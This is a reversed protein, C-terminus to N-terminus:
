SRSHVIRNRVALTREALTRIRCRSEGIFDPEITDNLREALISEPNLIGIISGATAGNCDTDLGAMVALATSRDITRDGYFLAMIVIQLNNIAHVDSMGRYTEDFRDM